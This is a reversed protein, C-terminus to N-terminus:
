HISPVFSPVHPFYVQYPKLLEHPPLALLTVPPYALLGCAREVKDKQANYHPALYKRAYQLAEVRKLPEQTRVM